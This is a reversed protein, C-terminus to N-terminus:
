QYLKLQPWLMAIPEKPLRLILIPAQNEYTVCNECSASASRDPSLALRM